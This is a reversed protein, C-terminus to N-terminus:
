HSDQNTMQGFGMQVLGLHGLDDAEVVSVQQIPMLSHQTLQDM